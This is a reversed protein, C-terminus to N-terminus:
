DRQSLDPTLSFHAGSENLPHHSVIARRLGFVLGSGRMVRLPALLSNRELARAAALGLFDPRFTAAFLPLARVRRLPAARTLGGVARLAVACLFSVFRSRLFAEGSGLISIATFSM